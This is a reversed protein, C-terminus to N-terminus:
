NYFLYRIKIFFHFYLNLTGVKFDNAINDAFAKFECRDINNETKRKENEDRAKELALKTRTQRNLM